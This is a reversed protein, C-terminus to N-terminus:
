VYQDVAHFGFLRRVLSAHMRPEPRHRARLPPHQTPLMRIVVQSLETDLKWSTPPAADFVAPTWGLSYGAPPRPRYGLLAPAGLDPRRDRARYQGGGSGRRNPGPSVRPRSGATRGRPTGRPAGRRREIASGAKARTFEGGLEASAPALRRCAVAGAPGLPSGFPVSQNPGREVAVAVLDAEPDPSSAKAPRKPLCGRVAAAAQDVGLDNTSWATRLGVGSRRSSGPVLPERRAPRPLGAGRPVGAATLITGQWLRSYNQGDPARSSRGVALNLKLVSRKAIGM